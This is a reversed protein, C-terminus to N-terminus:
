PVRYRELAEPDVEVGLGPLRPVTMRGGALHLPEMLLDSELMEATALGHAQSGSITAALHLAGAIGVGSEFLTSVTVSVGSGAALEAISGAQRLGGVRGPKLVMVDIAGERILARASGLDRISEDAAITVGSSRRLRAMAAAGATPSIPQEVYELDLPALDTLVSAAKRTPIQGNFDIRLKVGPGIAERVARIRDRLVGDPEDGGKLKLTRFGSLVQDVAVTVADDAPLIGIVANVAVDHAPDAAMAGAVTTGWARATLDVIASEVAGRVVRGVFACADLRRIVDELSVPDGLDIGQLLAPLDRSLDPGLDNAVPAAFEGLGELGSDTRLSLLAIRRREWRSRGSVFPTRFPVEVSTVTVQAIRM